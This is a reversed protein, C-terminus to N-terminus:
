GEPQLPRAIRRLDRAHGADPGHRRGLIHDAPRSFESGGSEVRMLARIWPEPIDFRSSAEHIFPGWPDQPSGPAVYSNRAHAVYRATEQTANSTPPQPSSCAAFFALCAFSASTRLVFAPRHRQTM